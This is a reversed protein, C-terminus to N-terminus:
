EPEADQEHYMMLKRRIDLVTIGTFWEGKIKQASFQNHLWKEAKRPNYRDEIYELIITDPNGTQLSQIRQQIDNTIGIKVRDGCRLVYLKDPVAKM